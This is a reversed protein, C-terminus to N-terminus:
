SLQDSTSPTAEFRADFYGPGDHSPGPTSM